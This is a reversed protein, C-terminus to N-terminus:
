GLEGDRLFSWRVAAEAKKGSFSTFVVRDEVFEASRARDFGAPVRTMGQIHAVRTPRDPKLLLSTPIGAANLENRRASRALGFTFYACGDEVGLCRNVGNWPPAHRGGNSMWLTTQPLLAPDRLAFWLARHAPLVVATWAPTWAPSRAAVRPLAPFLAVLDMFGRPIPQTGLDVFPRDRWITPVRDLRTFAKGPSLFYYENEVNTLADRPVVRALRAPSTSVRLSGPEPPVALTAHHSLCMRGAFGEIVHRIYVAHHGSVLSLHKTIRGPRATTSLGLVLESLAGREQQSVLEWPSGASEGHVPHSEGHWDNEGGFPMCFFDGRLPDLVPVGTATGSGQWPSVYYPQVPEASDRFFSVPAMQGGRETVALEVQANAIVWSSEGKITTKLEGM